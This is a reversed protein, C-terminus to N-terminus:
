NSRLKLPSKTTNRGLFSDHTMKPKIKKGRQCCMNDVIPTSIVVDKHTHGLPITVSVKAGNIHIEIRECMDGSSHVYAKVNALSKKSM